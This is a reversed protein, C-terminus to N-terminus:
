EARLAIVPDIQAAHRAPVWAAFGGVLLLGLAAGALVRPEGATIDFLQASLIRGSAWALGMGVALGIAVVFLTRALLLRVLHQPQAGLASRIGIERTRRTVGYAGVVALGVAAIITSLAGFAVFVTSGLRWPRLLNMFIDDFAHADVYPLDPAAAQSERRLTQLVSAPDGATRVLVARSSTSGYQEIPLYYASAWQTTPRISPYLRADAVIGIVDTCGHDRGGLYFCKGVAPEGPWIQRAMSETIVAVPPAGKRNEDETFLRGQILRMRMLSFFSPDVPNNSPVSTSSFSGKWLDKGPVEFLFSTSSQMPMNQILATSEVQSLRALRAQIQRHVAHNEWPHGLEFLDTTVVAVHDTQMGLDQHRANWLSLVFLAAAVIMPLSLAVQLGSFLDLVRSSRVMASQGPNLARRTTLRLAPALGLLFAAALCSGATVLVVRTDIPSALATIPSLFLRRMVTGGTAVVLLAVLGAGVALLLAEVLVERLLRSRGAGLATKVVFERDRRLGRVLLINAVNGCTIILVLISMGAVLVEVRTGVPAGPARAPRLDGLVVFTKKDWSQTRTARFAATAHENARDRSVGPRLRAIIQLYAAEATKWGNGYAAKARPALPLWVDAPRWGLGRFGRPAVAVISYTDLGLRLPKGLVDNAAGFEQQWLAYSIVAVDERTADSADPWAGTAPQLGLVGFYGPSHAVIELRRARQGRGLSLSESLYAASAELEDHLTALAEFTAYGTRDGYSDGMGLYVRAVRDPDTVQEPARLLVRDLVDVMVVASGIGLALILMAGSSLLPTAALRRVAQRVDAPILRMM